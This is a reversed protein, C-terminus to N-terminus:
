KGSEIWCGDVDSDEDSSSL